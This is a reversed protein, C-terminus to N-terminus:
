KSEQTPKPLYYVQGDFHWMGKAPFHHPRISGDLDVYLNQAFMREAVELGTEFQTPFNFSM